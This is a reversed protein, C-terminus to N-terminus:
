EFSKQFAYMNEYAYVFLIAFLTKVADYTSTWKGWFTGIYFEVDTNQFINM